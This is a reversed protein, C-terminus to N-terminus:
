GANKARLDEVLGIEILDTSTSGLLKLVYSQPIERRVLANPQNIAKTAWYKQLM